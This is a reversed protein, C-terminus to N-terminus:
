GHHHLMEPVISAAAGASPILAMAMNTCYGDNTFTVSTSAGTALKDETGYANSGGGIGTDFRRSTFTAGVSLASALYNSCSGIVWDGNVSDVVTVNVGAGGGGDGAHYVTRHGAAVSSNVVGLYSVAHAANVGAGAASFSVVVNNAGSAPTHLMWLSNKCLLGSSSDNFAGLATLAVGAYTVGTVTPVDGMYAAAVVLVAGATITHSFTLSAVAVGTVGSVAGFAIAM